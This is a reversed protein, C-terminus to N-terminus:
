DAEMLSVHSAGKELKFSYRDPFANAFEDQHSVLIIRTLQERLVNLEQIMDDRGAKDLSGFGEDIIVSEVPRAERSSYRGIALALSVAIRFHQSGSTLDLLIAKQGTDRDHVALDLAKETRSVTVDNDRRLELRMRGHSLGYLTKNALEVITKEARRLLFLQLGGRGLLDALVKYLRALRDALLKQQELDCRQKRQMEMKALQQNVENRKDDVQHRLTREKELDQEVEVATRCAEPAYFALQKNLEDIRQECTTKSQRAGRLNNHLQEYESLTERKQELLQLGEADLSAAQAQWVESLSDISSLLVRKMEGLVAQDSTLTARSRQFEEKLKECEEHAEREMRKEQECAQTQQLIDADLLERKQELAKKGERAATAVEEDTSATLKELQQSILAKQTTKQQWRDHESRVNKLYSDHERKGVIEQQLVNLDTETPYVTALWDVEGAPVPSIVLQQYPSQLNDYATQIQNSYQGIQNNAQQRDNESQRCTDTLSKMQAELVSIAERASQLRGNTQWYAENLADFNQKIEEMQSQLRAKERQAHGTTIEQGCLECVPKTAADEFNALREIAAKYRTHASTKEELLGREARDAEILEKDLATHVNKLDTLQERLNNAQVRAEEEDKLAKSFNMRAQAFSKLWPLVESKTILSRAQAEAEELRQKIDLPFVALETDLDELSARQEEIRELREVLPSLELLRNMSREKTQRLETITQELQTVRQVVGVYREEAERLSEELQQCDSQLKRICTDKQLVSQRQMVVQGLPTLVQRLDQLEAFNEIIETERTLLTLLTQREVRREKLQAIDREWQEAQVRWETLQGVSAQLKQWEENVLRLDSKATDIEEDSVARMAEGQLQQELSKTRNVYFKRRDDAAEHLQQYRSLDIIEALIDYRGKPDANLLQESKGQLLLVSSTFTKYDLGISNAVWQKFGDDYDTGAIPIVNVDGVDNRRLEFALRTPRGNRPCTRRIRYVLGDVSFDFEIIFKDAHHNILEKANKADKGARHAGFLAFTIADFVASKGVGNSGWLMWLSSGNFDIVQKEQYSLFGELSVRLPIM